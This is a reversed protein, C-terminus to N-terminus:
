LRPTLGFDSPLLSYMAADHVENRVVMRNLLIGERHAGIKDAVRQSAINEVAIVIEARVLNAREFAFRAALRAARGAYGNGRQTTRIWYGLNCFKYIPHIHSLSCGGLFINRHTDIIAFGYYTGDAWRAQAVTVWDRTERREYNDHAWSMWPKLEALSECVAEYMSPIDDARLPRLAVVGDNLRPFALM